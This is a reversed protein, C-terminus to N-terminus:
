PRQTTAACTSSDAFPETREAFLSSRGGAVERDFYQGAGRGPRRPRCPGLNRQSVAATRSRSELIWTGPRRSRGPATLAQPDYSDIAAKLSETM